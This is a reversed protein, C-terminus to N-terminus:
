SKSLKMKQQQDNKLKIIFDIHPILQEIEQLRQRLSVWEDLSLKGSDLIANRIEDALKDGDQEAILDSIRLLDDIEQQSVHTKAAAM